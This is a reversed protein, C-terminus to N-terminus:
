EPRTAVCPKIFDATQFTFGASFHLNAPATGEGQQVAAKEQRFFRFIDSAVQRFAAVTV